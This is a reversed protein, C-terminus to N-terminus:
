ARPILIDTRRQPQVDAGLLDGLEHITRERDQVQLRLTVRRSALAPDTVALPREFFRNLDEIVAGVTADEYSVVRMRWEAVSEIPIPAAHDKPLQEASGLRIRRGAALTAIEQGARPGSLAKVAVVGEAVAVDVQGDRRRVNFATGVARIEYDGATVLFPRDPDKKVFFVAEGDELKVQRVDPKMDYAVRTVVNLGVVSGDELTATRQEGVDTTVRDPLNLYVAAGGALVAAMLAPVAAEAWRRPRSKPQPATVGLERIASVEGWLEHMHNLAAQHARDARWRDFEDREEISMPGRRLASFWAAAEERIKDDLKM